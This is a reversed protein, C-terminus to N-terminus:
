WAGGVWKDRILTGRTQPCQESFKGIAEIMNSINFAIM